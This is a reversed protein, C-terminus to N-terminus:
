GKKSVVAYLYMGETGPPKIMVPHRRLPWTLPMLWFALTGSLTRSVPVPQQVYLTPEARFHRRLLVRLGAEDYAASFKEDIEELKMGFYRRVLQQNICNIILMGGPALLRYMKALAADSDALYFLTGLCIIVDFSGESLPTALFDGRVSRLRSNGEQITSAVHQDLSLISAAGRALLCDHGIGTGGGIDLLRKGAVFNSAFRYNEETRERAVRGVISTSGSIARDIIIARALRKSFEERTM